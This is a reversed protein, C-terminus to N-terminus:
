GMDGRVARIAQTLASIVLQVQKREALTLDLTKKTEVKKGNKYIEVGPKGEVVPMRFGPFPVDGYNVIIKMKKMDTDLNALLVRQETVEGNNKNRIIMQFHDDVLVTVEGLDDIEKASKRLEEQVRGLSWEVMKRTDGMDIANAKLDDSPSGGTVVQQESRDKIATANQPDPNGRDCASLCAILISLSYIFTKKM